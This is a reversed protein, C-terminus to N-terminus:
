SNQPDLFHQIRGGPYYAPFALNFPDDFPDIMVRSELSLM